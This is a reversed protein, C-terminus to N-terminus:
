EHCEGEDVPLVFQLMAGGAEPSEAWIRGGHAEIISRCISLGMGMGDARTTFFANFMRGACDESIGIGSDQVSVQAYGEDSRRTTIHLRREGNEGSMAQVSNMMLNILVQLMQGRDCCVAPAPEELDYHLEVRHQEFERRLLDVSERVIGNLEIMTTARERTTAVARIRQIIENVRKADRVMNKVSKEAQGLEPVPRNLWRVAAGGCAIVASVPQAVEHAISAALEGLLTVGRLHAHEASSRVLTEQAVRSATIDILAGVYENCDPGAENLRAVYRVYKVSGDPMALRHEVDVLAAGGKQQEFAGRVLALDDPHTRSRMTEFSPTSGRPCDFIRHTEDSWWMSEYPVITGTQSLRQTDHLVAENRELTQEASKNADITARLATTAAQNRIGLLATVAIASVSVLCQAIADGSYGTLNSMVFGLLTLGVCGFTAALTARRDQTSAVLLVVVVYFVSVAADFPSLVDIGFVVLAIVAALTLVIRKSRNAIPLLHLFTKM